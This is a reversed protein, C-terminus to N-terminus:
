SGPGPSGAMGSIAATLRRETDEILTKDVKFKMEKAPKLFLIIAEAPRIGVTKEFGLAYMALQLRYRPLRPDDDGPFQETKFDLIRFVDGTKFVLDIRGEIVAGGLRIGFPTEKLVRDARAINGVAPSQLAATVIAHAEETLASAQDSDPESGPTISRSPYDVKELLQHVIEGLKRGEEGEDGGAREGSTPFLEELVDTVSFVMGRRAAERIRERALLLSSERAALIEKLQSRKDGPPDPLPKRVVPSRPAYSREVLTTGEPAQVKRDFLGPIAEELYNMPSGKDGKLVPVILGDRARTFAVYLLRRREADAEADEIEKMDQWGLSQINKGLKVEFTGGTRDALLQVTDTKRSGSGLDPLVVIPFELGKAKHVTLLRVYDEGEELVPSEAEETEVTTRAKIFDVVRKFSRVGKEEVSGALELAKYLNAVRQEGQPKTLYLELAKTRALLLHITETPSLLRSAHHLEALLEFAERISECDVQGGELYRFSGGGKRFLFLEEDSVGFLPTRLAAVVALEDYPRKVALLANLLDRLEQRQYFYKGGVVLYPIDADRFADEYAYLSTMKHFLLAVDGYSAKRLHGAQKDHVTWQQEEIGKRLLRAVLSAEMVRAEEAPQRDESPRKCRLLVFGPAGDHDSRDPQLEVYPPQNSTPEANPIIRSFLDNVARALQPTSRFSRNLTEVSAGEASLKKRVSDYMAIDARRFRYISQKPDGVLFLKGKETELSTWSAQRAPGEECLYFVIEAQLPDTDQFEDVLVYKFRARATQRFVLNDRLRNRTIVLLDHFDLLARRRKEEQFETIFSILWAVVRASLTDAARDHHHIVLSRVEDLLSRAEDLAGGSVWNKKNGIKGGRLKSVVQFGELISDLRDRRRIESIWEELRRILVACRDGPNSCYGALGKLRAVLPEAERDLGAPLWEDGRRPCDELLERNVSLVEGLRRLRDVTLGWRFAGVLLPDDLATQEALWRRWVEEFILSRELEDAVAFSPDVGVELAHERLLSACFSHITSIHSRELSGLASVVWGEKKGERPSRLRKELETRIRVKLEAAAKETFTIVLLEDLGARETSLIELVRSILATTKGTGASAEVFLTDDLDKEIRERSRSDDDPTRV